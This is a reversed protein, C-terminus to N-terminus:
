AEGHTKVGASTVASPLALYGITIVDEVVLRDFELATMVEGFGDGCLFIIPSDENGMMMDLSGEVFPASSITLPLFLSFTVLSAKIRRSRM